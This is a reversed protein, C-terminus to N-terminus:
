GISEKISKAIPGLNQIVYDYLKDIIVSQLEEKLPGSCFEIRQEIKTYSGVLDLPVACIMSKGQVNKVKTDSSALVINKVDVVCTGSEQRLIEYRWINGAKSPTYIVKECIQLSQVFCSDDYCIKKFSPSTAYLYFFIFIILMVLLATLPVLHSKPIGKERRRKERSIEVARSSGRKKAM